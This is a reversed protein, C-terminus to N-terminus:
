GGCKRCARRNRESSAPVVVFNHQNLVVTYCLSNHRVHTPKTPRVIYVTQNQLRTM